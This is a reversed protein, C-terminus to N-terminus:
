LFLAVDRKKSWELMERFVTTKEFDEKKYSSMALREVQEQSWGEDISFRRKLFFPILYSVDHGNSLFCSDINGNSEEEQVRMLQQFTPRDEKRKRQIDIQNFGIVKKALMEDGLYEGKKDLTDEYKPRVIKGKEEKSFKVSISNRFVGLKMYGIRDTVSWVDKLLSAGKEEYSDLKEGEDIALLIDKYAGSIFIMTEIDHVDMVFLNEVIPLEQIIGFFDRDIVGLVNTKQENGKRVVDQVNECGNCSRLRVNERNIFKKWFNIDSDGEVFLYYGSFSDDNKSVYAWAGPKRDFANM